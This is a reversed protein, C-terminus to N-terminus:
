KITSKFILIVDENAPKIDMSAKVTSSLAIVDCEVEDAFPQGNKYFMGNSSKIFKDGAHCFMRFVGLINYTGDVPVIFEVADVANPKAVWDHKTPYNSPFNNM